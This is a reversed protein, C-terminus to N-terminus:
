ILIVILVLIGGICVFMYVCVHRLVNMNFGSRSILFGVFLSSNSVWFGVFVWVNSRLCGDLRM